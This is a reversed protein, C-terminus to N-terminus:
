LTQFGNNSMTTMFNEQTWTEVVESSKCANITVGFFWFQSEVPLKLFKHHVIQGDNFNCERAIVDAFVKHADFDISTKSVEKKATWFEKAPTGVILHYEIYDLGSFDEKKLKKLRFVLDQEFMLAMETKGMFHVEKGARRVKRLTHSSNRPQPPLNKILFSIKKM